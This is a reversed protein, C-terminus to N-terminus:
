EKKWKEFYARAKNGLDIYVTWDFPRTQAERLESILALIRADKNSQLVKEKAEADLQDLETEKM